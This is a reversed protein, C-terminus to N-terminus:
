GRASSPPSAESGLLDDLAVLGSIIDHKTGVLAICVHQAHARRADKMRVNGLENTIYTASEVMVRACNHAEPMVAHIASQHM